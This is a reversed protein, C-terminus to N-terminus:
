QLHIRGNDAGPVALASAISAAQKYVPLGDPTREDTKFFEFGGIPGFAITVRKIGAPAKVRMRRGTVDQLMIPLQLGAPEVIPDSSM